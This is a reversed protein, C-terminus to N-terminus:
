GVRGWGWEPGEIAPCGPEGNLHSRGLWCKGPSRPCPADERRGRGTRQRQREEKGPSRSRSGRIRSKEWGGRRVGKGCEGRTKM